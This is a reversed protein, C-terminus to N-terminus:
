SWSGSLLGNDAIIERYRLWRGIAVDTNADVTDISDRKNVDHKADTQANPFGCNPRAIGNTWRQGVVRIGDGPERQFLEAM